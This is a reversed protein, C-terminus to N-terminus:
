RNESILEEVRAAKVDTRPHAPSILSISMRSMKFKRCLKIVCLARILRDCLVETLQHHIEIHFFVDFNRRSVVRDTAHGDERM